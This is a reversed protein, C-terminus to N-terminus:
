PTTVHAHGWGSLTCLDNEKIPGTYITIKRSPSHNIDIPPTIIALALDNEFENPHYQPHIIKKSITHRVGSDVNSSGSLIIYPKPNEICHAATIIATTSLISGTCVYYGDEHISVVYPAQQISVPRNENWSSNIM